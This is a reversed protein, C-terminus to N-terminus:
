FPDTGKAATEAVAKQTQDFEPGLPVDRWYPYLMPLKEWHKEPYNKAVVSKLEKVIYAYSQANLHLGDTFFSSLKGLGVEPKSAERMVASWADVVPVGLEQGLSKVEEAYRKTNEPDRDHVRPLQRREREDLWSEPHFPPPTILIISTEPSYHSSSPDRVLSVIQRLNDRFRPLPVHQLEGELTADNAGFWITMIQTKPADSDKLPLWKKLCALAWDTNYGSLGRNMVDLKRQYLHALSAGLGKEDWSLETLSDGVCLITDLRDALM